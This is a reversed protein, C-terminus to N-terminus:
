CNNEILKPEYNRCITKRDTKVHTIKDGSFILKEDCNKNYGKVAMEPVKKKIIVRRNPSAQSILLAIEDLDTFEICSSEKVTKPTRILSSSITDTLGQDNSHTTRATSKSVVSEEADTLTVYNRLEDDPVNTLDVTNIVQDPPTNTVSNHQTRELKRDDKPFSREATMNLHDTPGNKIETIEIFEDTSNCKDLMNFKENEIRESWLNNPIPTRKEIKEKQDHRPFHESIITLNKGTANKLNNNICNDGFALLQPLVFRRGSNKSKNLSLRRPPPPGFTSQSNRDLISLNM